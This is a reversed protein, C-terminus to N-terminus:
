LKRHDLYVKTYNCYFYCQTVRNALPHTKKFNEIMKDMIPGNEMKNKKQPSYWVIPDGKWGPIMAQMKIKSNQKDSLHM